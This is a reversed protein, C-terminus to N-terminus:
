EKGPRHMLFLAAGALAIVAVAGVVAYLVISDDEPDEGPVVVPIDQVDKSSYYDYGEVTGSVYYETTGMETETPPIKVKSKVEPHEIGALYDCDQCFVRVSCAATGDWTCIDTLRHPMVVETAYYAVYGNGTSGKEINLPSNCAVTVTALSTCGHFANDGISTVSSPIDISTLSTCYYFASNGISTVSSPITVSALSSCDHFAYDGIRTIGDSLSVSTCDSWPRVGSDEYDRMEGSGTITLVGSDSDYTWTLNNGNKGCDGSEAADSGDSCCTVFLIASLVAVQFAAGMIRVPSSVM